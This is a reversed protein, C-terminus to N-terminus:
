QGNEICTKPDGVYESSIPQSGGVRAHKVLDKYSRNQYLQSNDLLDERNITDPM